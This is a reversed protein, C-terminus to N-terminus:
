LTTCGNGCDIKSHKWSRLFLGESRPWFVCIKAHCFLWRMTNTHTHTHTHTFTVCCTLKHTWDGNGAVHGQAFERDARLRIKMIIVRDAIWHSFAEPLCSLMPAKPVQSVIGAEETSTSEGDRQEEMSRPRWGQYGCRRLSPSSSGASSVTSPGKFASALPSPTQGLLRSDFLRM